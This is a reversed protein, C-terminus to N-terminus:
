RTRDDGTMSASISAWCLCPSHNRIRCILLLPRKREPPVTSRGPQRATNGEKGAPEPLVQGDRSEYIKHATTKVSQYIYAAYATVGAVAIILISSVILIWKKM